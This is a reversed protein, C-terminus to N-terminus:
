SHMPHRHPAKHALAPTATIPVASLASRLDKQGRKEDWICGCVQKSRCHGTVCYVSIDQVSVTQRGLRHSAHPMCVDSNVRRGKTPHPGSPTHHLWRSLCSMHVCLHSLTPIRFSLNTEVAPGGPGERQNTPPLRPQYFLTSVAYRAGLAPCHHPNELGTVSHHHNSSRSKSHMQMANAILFSPPRRGTDFVTLNCGINHPLESTRVKSHLGGSCPHTGM